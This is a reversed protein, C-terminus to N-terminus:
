RVEKMRTSLSNLKTRLSSDIMRSGMKVVLGGLIAPDVRTEIRVHRGAATGKLADELAARQGDNLPHASVVEATVEGRHRAAIQRFIKVIDSLAFLRRSRALLKLFNVTLQSFGASAALATVAKGQDDASIVPSRVMRTLDASEALMGALTTMDTEVADLSREDRALDFLASAYRGAVSAMIPEDTAM